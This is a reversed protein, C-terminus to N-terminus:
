KQPFVEQQQIIRVMFGDVGWIALPIYVAPLINIVSVYDYPPPRWIVAYLIPQVFAFSSVLLLYTTYLHLFIIKKMTYNMKQARITRFCHIYLVLALMYLMSQLSNMIVQLREQQFKHFWWSDEWTPDSIKVSTGTSLM